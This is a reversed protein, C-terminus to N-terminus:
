HSQFATATIAAAFSALDRPGLCGRRGSRLPTQSEEVTFPGSVLHLPPPRLQSIGTRNELPHVWPGGTNLDRGPGQCGVVSVQEGAAETCACCPGYFGVPERCKLCSAAALVSPLWWHSVERGTGM